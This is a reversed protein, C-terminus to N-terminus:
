GRDPELATRVLGPLRALADADLAARLAGAAAPNHALLRGCAQASRNGVLNAILRTAAPDHKEAALTRKLWAQFEGGPFQLLVRHLLAQEAPDLTWVRRVRLEPAEESAPQVDTAQARTDHARRLAAPGLRQFTAADVFAFIQALAPADPATAVVVEAAPGSLYPTNPHVAQLPQETDLRRAYVPVAVEPLAHVEVGHAGRRVLLHGRSLKPQVLPWASVPLDGARRRIEAVRALQAGTPDEAALAELEPLGAGRGVLVVPGTERQFGTIRGDAGLAPSMLLVLGGPDRAVLDPLLTQVAELDIEGAINARLVALDSLLRTLGGRWPHALLRRLADPQIGRGGLQGLIAATLSSPGREALDPVVLAQAQLQARLRRELGPLDADQTSAAVVLTPALGKKQGVEGLHELQLAQGPRTQAAAWRLVNQLGRINDEWAHDLLAAEVEPSAWPDPLTKDGRAQALFTRALSLIDERRERLPPLRLVVGSLRALLDAKFAGREAMGHLDRNTAAVVRVDVTYVRDNGLPRVKKEQLVGLLMAQNKDSLNGVEDLFLTGGHAARFAGLRDRDAGTFAGRAYGFLESAVLDEPIASLDVTILPGTRGSAEHLARALGEKGAGQEGLILTTLDRPAAMSAQHLVQRLALSDGLIASFASGTPRPPAVGQAGPAVLAVTSPQLRQRLAARHDEDLGSLDEVLAWREASARAQGGLVVLPGAGLQLHAWRALSRRGSGDPGVLLVPLGGRCRALLTRRASALGPDVAVAHQSDLARIRDVWALPADLPPGDDDVVLLAGARAARATLAMIQPARLGPGVQLWGTGVVDLARGALENSWGLTPQLQLLPQWTPSRALADRYLWRGVLESGLGRIPPLLLPMGEERVLGAALADRLPCEPPLPDLPLTNPPQM